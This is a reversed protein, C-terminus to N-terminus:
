MLQLWAQQAEQRSRSDKYVSPGKNDTDACVDITITVKTPPPGIARPSQFYYLRKPKDEEVMEGQTVNICCFQPNPGYAMCVKRIFWDMQM